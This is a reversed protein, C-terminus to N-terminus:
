DTGQLILFLQPSLTAVRCVNYWVVWAVLCEHERHVHVLLSLILGLHGWHCGWNTLSTCTKRVGCYPEPVEGLM